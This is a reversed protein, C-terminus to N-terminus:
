ELRALEQFTDPRLDYAQAFGSVLRGRGFRLRYLTFDALGLTLEATPLRATFVRSAADFADTGRELPEVVAQVTLRPVQLPDVDDTDLGHILLSVTAGEDLARSHKALRSAQVYASQMDSAVAYPLLSAAPEGDIIAALCLVKRTTLLERIAILVAKDM